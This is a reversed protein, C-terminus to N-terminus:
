RNILYVKRGFLKCISNGYDIQTQKTEKELIVQIAQPAIQLRVDRVDPYREAIIEAINIIKGLDKLTSLTRRNVVHWYKFWDFWFREKRHYAAILAAYFKYQHELGYIESEKIIYFSNEHHNNFGIFEGVDHLLSSVSLIKRFHEPLHHIAETQDFVSLALKEVFEAHEPNCNYQAMIRKLSSGLVDPEIASARKNLKSFQEYFLGYVLSYQSYYMRRSNTAKFLALLPVLGGVIVESLSSNIGLKDIREKAPMKVIQNAMFAVNSYNIMYGHLSSSTAIKKSMEAMALNRASSGCAIIPFNKSSALWELNEFDPLITNVAESIRHPAAVVTNFFKETLNVAGFPISAYQKLKRDQVLVIETSNGGTDIMIFDRMDTSNIVGIYEYVAEEEGSIIRCNTSAGLTQQVLSLFDERNGARRVAETCVAYIAIPTYFDQFRGSEDMSEIVKKFDSLAIATREIASVDLDGTHSTSQGLFTAVSNYYIQKFSDGEISFIEMTTSRSGIDIIAM